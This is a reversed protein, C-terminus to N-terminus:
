RYPAITILLGIFLLIFTLAMYISAAKFLKFTRPTTPSSLNRLAIALIYSSFFLLPILWILEIELLFGTIITLIASIIASLTIIRITQREGSAVPWMPIKAKTYDRLNIPLLALTLIHLPIWAVVFLGLLIGILDVSNIVATRGALAPLGGAIGGFIISYKTRRKLILSYIIVDFFFGLFIVFTTLINLYLLSFILGAGIFFFGHKLVTSPAIKGSPLPRNQTREMIADIDRDIYMNFLTSGSVALTVSIFVWLFTFIDFTFQLATILYAFVTTYVLLITQKAKILHLYMQFSLFLFPSRKNNANDGNITTMEADKVIKNIM